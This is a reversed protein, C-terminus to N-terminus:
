PKKGGEEKSNALPRGSPNLQPQYFRFIMDQHVLENESGSSVWRDVRFLSWEGPTVLHRFREPLPKSSAGMRNTAILEPTMEESFAALEKEIKIAKAEAAERKAQEDFIFLSLAGTSATGLGGWLAGHTLRNEGDPASLAGVTGAAAGALGMTILTKQRNTLTACGMTLLAILVATIGNIKSM